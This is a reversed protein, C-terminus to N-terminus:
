KDSRQGRGAARLAQALAQLRPEARWQDLALPLKRRWNPHQDITGPLNAQEHQGCVDEPQVMLLQAPSRALYSHVALVLESSWPRDATPEVPVLGAATLARLLRARDAARDARQNEAQGPQPFLGLQERLDIDRGQWFGALTPLDHTSAAVLAQAPYDGPPCFEGDENWRKQFYLLRYSFVGAAALAARLEDPVTGLDEGIILCRQRQSELALIGLLDALPYEVYAGAQPSLGPPIWFLRLLAMVHDIRLAGSHRMNARLLATFPAYGREQLTVPIPPPLGWDQGGPSFDDPPAGIRAGGAYLAPDSWTAAGHSTEGVALDRYLGLAMGRTTAREAAAQLQGEALWQLYGYFGMEVTHDDAFRTVAAAAPHHFGPLWDFWGHVAPDLTRFWAHLTDFLAMRRLAEGHEAQFRRYDQARQSDRSLEHRDFHRYLLGLIEFKVAAVGAYDVLETARLRALRTQFETSAVRARAAACQQYDAVAEVDLYLPNLFQRSSPSYPSPQDPEAPFLEHLPNLGICDAGLDAAQDIAETLDTFDGVGWNRSSRLGYLQLALGWLRQGAALAPPQYCREPVVIIPLEAAALTLRHYGRPLTLPLPFAFRQYRHGAVDHQALPELAAVQLEGHHQRGSEETLTWVLPRGALAAPLTLSVRVPQETERVVQVPVLPRHWGAAEHEALIAADDSDVGMAALLARQIAPTTDHRQGWIDWYYPQIGYGAATRALLDQANM